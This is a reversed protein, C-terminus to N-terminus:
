IAYFFHTPDLNESSRRNNFNIRLWIVIAITSSNGSSDLINVAFLHLQEANDVSGSSPARVFTERIVSEGRLLPCVRRASAVPRRSLGDM